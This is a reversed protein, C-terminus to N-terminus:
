WVANAGDGNSLLVTDGTGDFRRLFGRDTACCRSMFLWHVMQPFQLALKTLELDRGWGLERPVTRV